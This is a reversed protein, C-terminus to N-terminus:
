CVSQYTKKSKKAVVGYQQRGPNFDTFETFFTNAKSMPEVGYTTVVNNSIFEKFFLRENTKVKWCGHM